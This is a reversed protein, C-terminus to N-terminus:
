ILNPGATILRGHVEQIEDLPSTDLQFEVPQGGGNFLPFYQVPPISRGIPVAEFMHKTTSFHLYRIDPSVTIGIFNLQFSHVFIIM